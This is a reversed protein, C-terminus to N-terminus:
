AEVKAEGNVAVTEDAKTPMVMEVAPIISAIHCLNSVSQEPKSSAGGCFVTGSYETYRTPAANGNDHHYCHSSLIVTRGPYMRVLEDRVENLTM